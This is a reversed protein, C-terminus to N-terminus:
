SQAARLEHLIADSEVDIVNWGVPDDFTSGRLYALHEEIEQAISVIRSM